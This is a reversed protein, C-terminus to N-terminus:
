ARTSGIWAPLVNTLRRRVLYLLNAAVLTTGVIGYGHGLLGAPNLMRYDRHAARAVLDQRYYDYGRWLMAGTLVALTLLTIFLRLRHMSRSPTDADLTENVQM